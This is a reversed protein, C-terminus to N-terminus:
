SKGTTNGWYNRYIVMGIVILVYITIYETPIDLLRIVFFIPINIILLAVYKNIKM